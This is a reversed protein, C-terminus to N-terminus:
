GAPSTGRLPLAARAEAAALLDADPLCDTVPFGATVARAAEAARAPDTSATGVTVCAPAADAVPTPPHVAVTVAGQAPVIGNVALLALAAAVSAGGKLGTGM